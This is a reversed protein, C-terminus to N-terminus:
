SGRGASQLDATKSQRSAWHGGLEGLDDGVSYFDTLSRLFLQGLMRADEEMLDVNGAISGDPGVFIVAAGSAVARATLALAEPNSALKTAAQQERALLAKTKAEQQKAKAFEERLKAEQHHPASDAIAKATSERHRETKVEAEAKEARAFSRRKEDEAGARLQKLREKLFETRLKDQKLKELLRLGGIVAGPILVAGFQLFDRLVDPQSALLFLADFPSGSRLRRVKLRLGRNALLNRTSSHYTWEGRELLVVAAHLRRVSGIVLEINRADSLEHLGDFRVHLQSKPGETSVPHQM